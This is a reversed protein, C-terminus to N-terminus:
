ASRGRNNLDEQNVEKAAGKTGKPKAHAAAHAGVANIAAHNISGGLDDDSSALPNHDGDVQEANATANSISHPDAPKEVEPVLPAENSPSRSTPTGTPASMSQERVTTYADDDRTNDGDYMSRRRSRSKCNGRPTESDMGAEGGGRGVVLSRISLVM